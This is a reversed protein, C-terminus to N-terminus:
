IRPDSDRDTGCAPARGPAGAPKFSQLTNRMGEEANVPLTEIRLAKKLKENSVAYSETLKKLRTSNSRRFNWLTFRESNLPLHLLDGTRALSNIINKEPKWIRAKQNKSEAIPEILRNTALPEDDALNYIGPNVGATMYAIIKLDLWFNRRKM